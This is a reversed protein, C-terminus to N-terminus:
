SLRKIVGADRLAPLYTRSVPLEAGDSTIIIAKGGDRKLAALGVEAVWHSRHIRWGEIGELEELADAFRMLILQNGKCTVVEVYHDQMSLRILRTGLTPNIRKLFRAPGEPPPASADVKSGRMLHVIGTIAVCIPMVYVLMLAYGPFGDRSFFLKGFAVLLGAYVVSFILAGLLERALEPLRSLRPTEYSWTIILNSLFVALGIAVLWYIGRMLVPMQDTGFPSALTATGAAALWIALLHPALILAKMERLTLHV